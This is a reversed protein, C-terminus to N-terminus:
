KVAKILFTKTLFLAEDASDISNGRSIEVFKSVDAQEGYLSLVELDSYGLGELRRALTSIPFTYHGHAPDTIREFPLPTEQLLNMLVRHYSINWIGGLLIGGPKLLRHYEQFMADEDDVLSMDECVLVADYSGPAISALPRHSHGFCINESFARASERWDDDSVFADFKLDMRRRLFASPLDGQRPNVCLVRTGAIEPAFRSLIMLEDIFATDENLRDLLTMRM